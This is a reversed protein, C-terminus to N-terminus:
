YRVAGRLAVRQAADPARDGAWFTPFPKVCTKCEAGMRAVKPDGRPDQAFDTKVLSEPEFAAAHEIPGGPKEM